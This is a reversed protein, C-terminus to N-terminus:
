EGDRSAGAEGARYRRMYENWDTRNHQYDRARCRDNCYDKRGARQPLIFKECGERKCARIPVAESLSLEGVHYREIQHSIFRCLPSMITAYTVQKRYFVPFYDTSQEDFNTEDERFFNEKVGCANERLFEISESALQPHKDPASLWRLLKRLRDPYKLAYRSFAFNESKGTRKVYRNVETIVPRPGDDPFSLYLRMLTWLGNIWASIGKRLEVLDAGEEAWDANAYDVIHKWMKRTYSHPKPKQKLLKALSKM